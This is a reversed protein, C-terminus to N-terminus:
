LNGSTFTVSLLSVAVVLNINKCIICTGLNTKGSRRSIRGPVFSEYHHFLLLLLFNHLWCDGGLGVLMPWNFLIDDLRIIIKNPAARWRCGHMVKLLPHILRANVITFLCNLFDDAIIARKNRSRNQVVCRFNRVEGRWVFNLLLVAWGIIIFLLMM